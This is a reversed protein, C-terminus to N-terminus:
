GIVGVVGRSLLLGEVRMDTSLEVAEPSTVGKGTRMDAYAATGAHIGGRVVEGSKRALDLGM